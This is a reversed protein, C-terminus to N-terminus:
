SYDGDGYNNEITNDVGEDYYEDNDSEIMNDYNANPNYGITEGAVPNATYTDDKFDPIPEDYQDDEDEDYYNNDYDDEEDYQDEEDDHEYGLFREFERECKRTEYNFRRMDDALDPDSQEYFEPDPNRRRIFENNSKMYDYFVAIEKKGFNIQQYAENINEYHEDIKEQKEDLRQKRRNNKEMQIYLKREREKLIENRKDTLQIKKMLKSYHPVTMYKYQAIKEQMNLRKIQNNILKHKKKLEDKATELTYSKRVQGKITYRNWKNLHNTQILPHCSERNYENEEIIKVMKYKQGHKIKDIIENINENDQQNDINQKRNYKNIQIRNKNNDPLLITNENKTKSYIYKTNGIQIRNDGLNIVNQEKGKAVLIRNKAISILIHKKKNKKLITQNENKVNFEIKNTIKFSEVNEKIPQNTIYLVDPM